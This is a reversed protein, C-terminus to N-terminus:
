YVSFGYKLLSNESQVNIEYVGIQLIESPVFLRVEAGHPNQYVRDISQTFVSKGDNLFKVSLNKASEIGNPLALRILVKGTLNQKSLKNSEGDSRFTGSVLSIVSFNKFKGTDSLDTQNFKTYEQEIASFNEGGPKKMFMYAFLWVFVCVIILAFAARLPFFKSSLILNRFSGSNEDASKINKAANKNRAYNKLLYIESIQQKRTESILFNKGFLEIEEHSLSNELFDEMLDNEALLLNEESIEDSIIRLEIEKIETEPLNGLLYNKLKESSYKM